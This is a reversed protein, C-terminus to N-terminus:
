LIIQFCVISVETAPRDLLILPAERMGAILKGSFTKSQFRITQYLRKIGLHLVYM